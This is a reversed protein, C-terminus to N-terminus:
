KLFEDVYANRSDQKQIGLYSDASASSQQGLLDKVFPLSKFKNYVMVARTRRGTHTGYERSDLGLKECWIKWLQRHREGSLHNNLNGAFLYQGEERKYTKIYEALIDATKTSLNVIHSKGTKKQKVNIEQRVQGRFDVVEDIKLKLLDSSRLMTDIQVCFLALDRLMRKNTLYSELQQIQLATLPKKQGVAKGKNWAPKTM